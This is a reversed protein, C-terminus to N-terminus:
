AALDTLGGIVFVKNMFACACHALRNEVMKAVNTWTKTSPSYKEVSNIWNTRDGRGGFVYVEGKLCIAEFSRRKAIMPRLVKIGKSSRANFQSVKKFALRQGKKNFYISQGGCILIDFLQQDCYRSTNYAASKNQFFTEKSLCIEQLIKTCEDIELFSSSNSLIYKLTDDPFLPFRVTLLLDKAFRRRENLNHSIWANAANYVELESTIALQSSSLIKLVHIFDLELFNDTTALMTFCREIYSSTAESLSPLKTLQYFTLVNQINLIKKVVKSLKSEVKEELFLNNLKLISSLENDDLKM